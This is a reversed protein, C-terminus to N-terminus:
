RIPTHNGGRNKLWALTAESAKAKNLMAAALPQVLPTVDEDEGMIEQLEIRIRALFEALETDTFNSPKVEGTNAAVLLVIQRPTLAAPNEDTRPVDYTVKPLVAHLQDATKSAICRDELLLQYVVGDYAVAGGWPFRKKAVAQATLMNRFHESVPKPLHLRSLIPAINCTTTFVTEAYVRPHAQQPVAKHMSESITQRSIVSAVHTASSLSLVMGPYILNPNAIANTKAIRPVTNGPFKM